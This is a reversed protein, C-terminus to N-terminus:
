QNSLDDSRQEDNPLDGASVRRCVTRDSSSIDARELGSTWPLRPATVACKGTCVGRIRHILISLARAFNPNPDLSRNIEM